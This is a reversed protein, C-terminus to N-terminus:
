CTEGKLFIWLHHHNMYMFHTDVSPGGTPWMGCLIMCSFVLHCLIMESVIHCAVYVLRVQCSYSTALFLSVGKPESSVCDTQRDTNM